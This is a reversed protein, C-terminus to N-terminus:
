RATGSLVGAPLMFARHVIADALRDAAGPLLRLSLLPDFLAVECVVPVGVANRITEIRAFLPTGFRGAVFSHAASAAQLVDPGAVCASATEPLAGAPSQGPKLQASKRLAGAFQGEIYVVVTEGETAVNGYYPQLMVTRAADHLARIHAGARVWDGENEGYAASQNCGASIAPKVVFRGAPLRYGEDPAVYCTRAVNVGADRLEELYHKDCNWAVLQASPVLRAQVSYVWRLFRGPDRYYDQVALIVVADYKGWDARPDDWVPQESAAGRQELAARLLQAEGDAGPSAASTAIAIVPDEVTV